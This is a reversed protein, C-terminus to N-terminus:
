KLSKNVSLIHDTTYERLNNRTDIKLESLCPKYCETKIKKQSRAPYLVRDTRIKGNRKQPKVELKDNLHLTGHSARKNFDWTESNLKVYLRSLLEQMALSNPSDVRTPDVQAPQPILSAFLLVGGCSTIEKNFSNIQSVIDRVKRDFAFERKDISSLIDSCFHHSMIDYNIGSILILRKFDRPSNWYKLSEKTEDILDKLTGKNVIISRIQPEYLEGILGDSVFVPYGMSNSDSNCVNGSGSQM